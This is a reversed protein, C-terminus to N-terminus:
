NNAKGQSIWCSFQQILTDNLAPGNLPMLQPSGNMTSLISSANASIEAHNTLIPLSGGIAHCSICNNQIMPAIQTSFLITDTCIVTNSTPVKEKTCSTIVAFFFSTIGFFIFRLVKM